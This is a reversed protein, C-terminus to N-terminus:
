RGAVLGPPRSAWRGPRRRRCAARFAAGTVVERQLKNIKMPKDIQFVFPIGSSSFPMGEVQAGTRVSTYDRSASRVSFRRRTHVDIEIDSRILRLIRVTDRDSDPFPLNKGLHERREWQKLHCIRCLRLVKKQFKFRVCFTHSLSNQCALIMLCLHVSRKLM